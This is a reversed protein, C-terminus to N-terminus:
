ATTFTEQSVAKSPLLKELNFLYTTESKGFYGFSSAWMRSWHGAFNWKSIHHCKKGLSACFIEPFLSVRQLPDSGASKVRELCSKGNVKVPSSIQLKMNASYWSPASHVPTQVILMIKYNFCMILAKWPIQVKLFFHPNATKKLFPFNWSQLPYPIKLTLNQIIKSTIGLDKEVNHTQIFQTWSELNPLM